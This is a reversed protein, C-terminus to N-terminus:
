PGASIPWGDDSWTLESIRLTPTGRAQADYSHYVNYDGSATQLIANHGPGKWRADGTVILTGGGTLLPMGEQDLYPGTIATSRGVMIKYTSNVSRCCFDVSEFLYYYEGRRIIYPAEVAENSRSSLAHLETGARAGEADLPFLKLGSWFSGFALWAAGDADLVVAPDIANYDDASTTCIVPGHDEWAPPDLSASTAHGICSSQSGFSSASYYLHYKGGFFSLDPAWLQNPDQPDTTTIWPPKTAFVQGTFTWRILDVSQHIRIGRGTAYLYYRSGAAILAPDHVPAIDGTLLLRGNDISGDTAADGAADPDADVPAGGDPVISGGGCGVYLAVLAGPFARQVATAHSNPM